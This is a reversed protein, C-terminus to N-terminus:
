RLPLISRNTHRTLSFLVRAAFGDIGTTVDDDFSSDQDQDGAPAAVALVARPRAAGDAIDTVLAGAPKKRRLTPAKAEKYEHDADCTTCRTLLM